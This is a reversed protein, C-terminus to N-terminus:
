KRESQISSQVYQSLNFTQGSEYIKAREYFYMYNDGSQIDNGDFNNILNVSSDNCEIMQFREVVNPRSLVLTKYHGGTLSGSHRVITKLVFINPPNNEFIPIQLLHDNNSSFINEVKVNNYHAQLHQTFQPSINAFKQATESNTKISQRPEVKFYLWPMMVIKFKEAMEAIIKQSSIKELDIEGLNCNKIFELDLCIPMRVSKDDKSTTGYENQKFRLLTMCLLDPVTQVSSYQFSKTKKKCSACQYSDIEQKKVMTAFCKFFDEEVPLMLDTFPTYTPSEHQCYQCRVTSGTQGEFTEKYVELTHEFKNKADHAKSAKELKDLINTMLENADEQKGTDIDLAKCFKLTSISQKQSYIMRLFILQLASVVSQDDKDIPELESAKEIREITERDNPGRLIANYGADTNYIAQLLANMYCTANNNRIGIMQINDQNIKQKHKYEFLNLQNCRKDLNVTLQSNLQKLYRIQQLLKSMDIKSQEISQQIFKLVIQKNKQYQTQNLLSDDLFKDFNDIQNSIAKLRKLVEDKNLSYQQDQLLQSSM